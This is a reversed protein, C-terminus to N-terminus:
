YMTACSDDDWADINIVLRPSSAAHELIDQVLNHYFYAHSPPITGGETRADQSEDELLAQGIGDSVTLVDDEDEEEPMPRLLQKRAELLDPLPEFSFEKLVRMLAETLRERVQDDLGELANMIAAIAVTSPRRIALSYDRVANEIQRAVEDRLHNSTGPELAERSMVLALVQHAVRMGTPPHLRWALARLMRREVGAVDEPAYLGRSAASLDEVVGRGGGGGTTREHLKVSIGLAALAALQLAARDRRAAAAPPTGAFRDLLHAAVAVTERGFRLRDALARCWDILRARDATTVRSRPAPDVGHIIACCSGDDEDAYATACSHCESDDSWSGDDGCGDDSCDHIYDRCAYTTREQELMLHLHESSLSSADQHLMNIPSHQPQLQPQPQTRSSM